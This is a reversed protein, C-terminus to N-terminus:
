LFLSLVREDKYVTLCGNRIVAWKKRWSKNYKTRLKELYGSLIVKNDCIGSNKNITEYDFDDESSSREGDAKYDIPSLPTGANSSGVPETFRVSRNLVDLKIRPSPLSEVPTSAFSNASTSLLSPSVSSGTAYKATDSPTATGKPIEIAQSNAMSLRVSSPMASHLSSPVMSEPESPTTAFLNDKTSNIIHITPKSYSGTRSIAQSALAPDIITASLQPSINKRKKVASRLESIWDKMTDDSPAQVYYTKDKTVIGFVHERKTSVPSVAHISDTDILSM